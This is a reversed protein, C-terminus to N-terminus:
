SLQEYPASKFFNVFFASKLLIEYNLNQGGSPAM